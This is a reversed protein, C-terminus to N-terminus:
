LTPHVIHLQALRINRETLDTRGKALNWARIPFLYQGCEEVHFNQRPPEPMASVLIERIIIDHREKV